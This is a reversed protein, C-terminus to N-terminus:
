TKAREAHSGEIAEMVAETDAATSLAAAHHDVRDPLNPDDRRFEELLAIIKASKQENLIALELTMQERRSALEDERRQTTLILITM